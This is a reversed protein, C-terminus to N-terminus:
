YDLFFTLPNIPINIDITEGCDECEIKATTAPGWDDGLQVTDAIRKAWPAPISGVWEIIQDRDDIGDVSQIINATAETIRKKLEDPEINEFDQASKMIEIADKFKIPHVKVVQGNPLTVGYLEGVTTPDIFKTHKILANLPIDYKHSRANKCDHTHSITISSGYTVKRLYILLSDVDKSYLEDPQLIQPICRSFVSAISRGNIIESINRMSIEDFATMPYVMVDGNVVDEALVGEKYFLGCSPLRVVEGPLKLEALLPNM